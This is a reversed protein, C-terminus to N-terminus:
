PTGSESVGARRKALAAPIAVLGGFYIVGAVIGLFLDVPRAAQTIHPITAVTLFAMTAPNIVVGAMGRILLFVAALVVLLMVALGAGAGISPALWAPLSAITVGAAAGLASRPLRDLKMEEMMSWQFLFLLAAWPERLGAAGALVFFAAILVIVTGVRGIANITSM